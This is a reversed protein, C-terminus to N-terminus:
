KLTLLDDLSHTTVDVAIEEFTKESTEESPDPAAEASARVCVTLLHRDTKTHFFRNERLLEPLSLEEPTISRFGSGLMKVYSEKATWLSLARDPAAAFATEDPHLIREIVSDKLPRHWEADIGVPANCVAVAILGKTHSLSYFPVPSDALDALSAPFAPAGHPTRVLLLPRYKIARPFYPRLVRELLLGSVISSARAAASKMAVTRLTREAAIRPLYPEEDFLLFGEPMSVVHVHLSITEEPYPSADTKDLTDRSPSAASPDRFLDEPTLIPYLQMAKGRKVKTFLIVYFISFILVSCLFDVPFGMAFVAPLHSLLFHYQSM